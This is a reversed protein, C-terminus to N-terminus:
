IYNDKSDLLEKKLQEFEKYEHKYLDKYKVIEGTTEKRVLLKDLEEEYLFIYTEINHIFITPKKSNIHKLFLKLTQTVFDMREGNAKLYEKEEEIKEIYNKYAKILLELDIHLDDIYEKNSEISRRFNINKIKYDLEIENLKLKSLLKDYDLKIDSMEDRYKDIEVKFSQVENEITKIGDKFDQVENEITKMEDKFGQAKDEIAKIHDKDIVNYINLGIWVTVAIGIIALGLNIKDDISKASKEYEQRIENKYAEIQKYSANPTDKSVNIVTQKGRGINQTKLIGVNLIVISITIISVITPIFLALAKAINYRRFGKNVDKYKHNM